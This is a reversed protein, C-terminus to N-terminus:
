PGSAGMAIARDITDAVLDVRTLVEREESGGATVAVVIRNGSPGVFYVPGGSDGQKAFSESVYYASGQPPRLSLETTEIRDGSRRLGTAAISGPAAHRAIEPYSALAIPRALLLVAVDASKADVQSRGIQARPDSWFREVAVFGGHELRALRVRAGSRGEVCHSATLAVRPAVLVGLCSALIGKSHAEIRLTEPPADALDLGRSSPLAPAAPGPARALHVPAAPVVRPEQALPGAGCGALVVVCLLRHASM